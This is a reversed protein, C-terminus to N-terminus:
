AQQGSLLPMIGLIRGMLLGCCQKIHSTQYWQCCLMCLLTNEGNSGLQECIKVQDSGGVIGVKVYQVLPALRVHAYTHYVSKTRLIQICGNLTCTDGHQSLMHQIFNSIERRVKRLEQLFDLTSQDAKQM